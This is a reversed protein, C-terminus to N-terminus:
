PRDGLAIYFTAGRDIESEAWIQGNHRAVIRQVTALGIGAGDYDSAAHLRQFPVFLKDAHKMDFGAGTDRIVLVTRGDRQEEGLWIEADPHRKTFKWANGLLNELVITLLRADGHAIVDPAIHVPTTRDPDSRRLEAVVQAALSSLDVRAWRLHTRTLRALNLLDDILGAMRQTAARVRNMHSRAEDDLQHGHDTLVLQSFGDITRLPARLDHSVSYSFAELEHNAAELAATRAQVRRELTAVLVANDIALGARDAVDQAFRQDDLTFPAGATHRVLSVMGITRERSRLPLVLASSIAVADLVPQMSPAAARLEAVREPSVAAILQAEGTAIVKGALGETIPTRTAGLLEGLRPHQEADRAYFAAAPELWAGDESVLRIACVEGILEGIRRAALALVVDAEGSAAALEHATRSLAELRATSRELAQRARAEIESMGRFAATRETVRRELEGRSHRLAQDDREIREAMTNFSTFLRALEDASPAPPLRASLDGAAIRETAASLAVVPRVIRSALALGLLLVVFVIAGIALAQRLSLAAIQVDIEREPMLVVVTWPATSLRRAVGYSRAHNFTAIGNFMEGDPVAAVARAFLEPFARVDALRARTAPGFRQDRVAAELADPALAGSPRFVLDDDDSHAIRIGLEDVVIAFSGPGALGRSGRVLEWLVSARVWLVVAGGPGAAPGTAPDVVPAAFALAPTDGLVPPAVHASSTAANGRLAERVFRADGVAAGVLGPETAVTVQGTRDVLGIALLGPDGALHAALLEDVQRPTVGGDPACSAVVAPVRALTATSRQYGLQLTEIQRRLQDTRAALLDSATDRLRVRAARIQLLASAVLPLLSAAVLLAVIKRRVPWDRFRLVKALAAQAM